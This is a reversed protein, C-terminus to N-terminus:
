TQLEVKIKFPIEYKVNVINGKHIRPKMKPLLSIVKQCESNLEPSRGYSEINV